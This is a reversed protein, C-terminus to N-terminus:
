VFRRGNSNSLEEDTLESLVIDDDEMETKESTYSLIM